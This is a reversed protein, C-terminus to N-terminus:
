LWGLLPESRVCPGGRSSLADLSQLCAMHSLNQGISHLPGELHSGLGAGDELSETM